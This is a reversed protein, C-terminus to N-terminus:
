DIVAGYINGDWEHLIDNHDQFEDLWDQFEQKATLINGLLAPKGAGIAKWANWVGYAIL